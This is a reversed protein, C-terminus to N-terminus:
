KMNVSARCLPVQILCENDSLAEALLANLKKVTDELKLVLTKLSAKDQDLDKELQIGRVFHFM